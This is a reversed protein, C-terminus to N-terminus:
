RRRTPGMATPRDDLRVPAPTSLTVTEGSVPNGNADTVTATATSTSHGDAVISSPSCRFRCTRRRGPAQTLTAHGSISRRDRHDHPGGGDDHEDGDGHVHWRGPRDDLWRQRGFVVGGNRRLCPNGNADTVTATATSTSTGNAVISTPYRSRCTQRRGRSQTLTAQGSIPGDTATITRNGATTSSTVQGYVDWRRSRGDTGFQIGPDGSSLEVRRWGGLQRPCRDRDGDRDVDIRWRRSDLAPLLSSRCRSGGAGDTYADGSRLRGVGSPRPSRASPRPDDLEDGNGYYTGDGKDTM